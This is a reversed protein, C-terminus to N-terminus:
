FQIVKLGVSYQDPLCLASHIARRFKPKSLEKTPRDAWNQESNDADPEPESGGRQAAPLWDSCSTISLLRPEAKVRNGNLGRLHSICFCLFHQTKDSQVAVYM